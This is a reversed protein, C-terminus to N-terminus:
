KNNKKDLSKKAKNLWVNVIPVFIMVIFGSVIFIIEYKITDALLGISIPSIINGAYFISNIITNSLGVKNKLKKNVFKILIITIGNSLAGASLGDLITGIIATPLTKIGYLFMTIGLLLGSVIFLVNTKKKDLLYGTIPASIMSIVYGLSTLFGIMTNSLFDAFYVNLLSGIISMVVISPLLTIMFIVVEKKMRLKNM